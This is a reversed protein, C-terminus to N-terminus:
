SCIPVLINVQEQRSVVRMVLCVYLYVTGILAWWNQKRRHLERRWRHTTQCVGTPMRMCYYRTWISFWEGCPIMGTGRETGACLVVTAWCARQSDNWHHVSILSFPSITSRKSWLRALRIKEFLRATIWLPDCGPESRHQCNCGEILNTTASAEAKLTLFQNSFTIVRKSTTFWMLGAQDCLLGAKILVNDPEGRM